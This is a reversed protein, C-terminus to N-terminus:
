YKINEGTAILYEGRNDSCNIARANERCFRFIKLSINKCEYFGCLFKRARRVKWIYVVEGWGSEADDTTNTRVYERSSKGFERSEGCSRVDFSARACALTFNGSFSMGAGKGNDGTADGIM